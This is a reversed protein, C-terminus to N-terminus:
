KNSLSDNEIKEKTKALYDIMENRSFLRVGHTQALDQAAKTFKAATTMVWAQNCNYYDKGSAVQQVAEIGVNDKYKKAQIAIREDGKEAIIDVGYDGSKKTAYSNYGNIRMLRAIWEEFDYPSMNNVQDFGITVMQKQLNKEKLIAKIKKSAYYAVIAFYYIAVIIYVIKAYQGLLFYAFIIAGIPLSVLFYLYIQLEKKRKRKMIGRQIFNYCAHM